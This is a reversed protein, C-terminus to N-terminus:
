TMMSNIGTRNYKLRNQRVVFDFLNSEDTHTEVDVKVLEGTALATLIDNRLSDIAGAMAYQSQALQNMDTEVNLSSNVKAPDVRLASDVTNLSTNLSASDVTPVIKPTYVATGSAMEDMAQMALSMTNIQDDTMDELASQLKPAEEKTGVIAGDVTQIAIKEFVKSPSAIGLQKKVKYILWDIGSVLQDGVMGSETHWGAEFGDNIARAIYDMSWTTNYIADKVLGKVKSTYVGGLNTSKVLSMAKDTDEQILEALKERQSSYDMTAFTTSMALSYRDPIADIINGTEEITKM